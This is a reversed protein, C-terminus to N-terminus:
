WAVSSLTCSALSSASSALSWSVNNPVVSGMAAITIPRSSPRRPATINIRLDDYTRSRVSFRLQLPPGTMGFVSSRLAAEQQERVTFTAVPVTVPEFRGAMDYILLRVEAAGLPMDAPVPLWFQSLVPVRDPWHEQGFSASVPPQDHQAYTVGDAGYVRVSVRMEPMVTRGRQWWTHVLLTDGRRVTDGNLLQGGYFEPGGLPTAAVPALAAIRDHLLALDRDLVYLGVSVDGFGFTGSLPQPSGIVELLGNVLNQPDMIHGQWAVVWVRRADHDRILQTLAPGAEDVFLFRNVDTLKDPPLGIWPVAVDYYEAATFLTGDRLLLVDGSEAHTNIYAFAERLYSNYTPPLDARSPLWVVVVVAAAAFWRVGRMRGIAQAGLALLLAAGIWVPWGHRGSLKAQVGYVMVLLGALPIAAMALAFLFERWAARRRWHVIIWVAGAALIAGGLLAAYPPTGPVITRQGYAFFEVYTTLAQWPNIHADYATGARIDRGALALLWPVYGTLLGLAIHALLIFQRRTRRLLADGGVFIGHAALAILGTYHTYMVALALVCYLALLRWYAQGFRRGARAYRQWLEWLVVSAWAYLALALAYPRVEFAAYIFGQSLAFAIGAVWGAFLSQGLRRGLAIVGAASLLACTYSYVRLAYESSGAMGAWLKRLVFDLPMQNDIGTCWEWIDGLSREAFFANVTEDYWFGRDPWHQATVLAVLLVVLSSMVVTSRSAARAAM